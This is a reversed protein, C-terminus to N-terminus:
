TAFWAVIFFIMLPSVQMPREDESFDVTTDNNVLHFCSYADVACLPDTELKISESDDDPEVKLHGSQGNYPDGNCGGSCDMATQIGFLADAQDLTKVNENLWEIAATQMEQEVSSRYQIGGQGTAEQPDAHVAGVFGFLMMVAAGVAMFQKM